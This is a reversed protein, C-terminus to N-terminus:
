WITLSTTTAKMRWHSDVALFMVLFAVHEAKKLLIDRKQKTLLFGVACFPSPPIESAVPIIIIRLTRCALLIEQAFIPLVLFDDQPSWYIEKYKRQHDEFTGIVLPDRWCLLQGITRGHSLSKLSQRKQLTQLCHSM